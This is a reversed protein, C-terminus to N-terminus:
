TSQDLLLVGVQAAPDSEDAPPAAPEGYAAGQIEGCRSSCREDAWLHKGREHDARLDESGRQAFRHLPDSSSVRLADRATRLRNIANVTYERLAHLDAARSIPAERNSPANNAQAAAAAQAVALGGAAAAYAGAVKPDNSYQEHCADLM